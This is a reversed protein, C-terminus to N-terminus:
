CVITRTYLSRPHFGSRGLPADQIARELQRARVAELSQRDPPQGALQPHALRPDVPVEARLLRQLQLRDPQGPLEELAVHDPRRLGLRVPQGAQPRQAGGVQGVDHLAVLGGPFEPDGDGVFVIGAVARHAVRDLGRHAAPHPRELVQDRGADLSPLERRAVRGLDRELDLGQEDRAAVLVPEVVVRLRGGPGLGRDEM